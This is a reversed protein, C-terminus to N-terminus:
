NPFLSLMDSVSNLHVAEGEMIYQVTNICVLTKLVPTYQYFFSPAGKAQQHNDLGHDEALFSFDNHQELLAPTMTLDTLTRIPFM